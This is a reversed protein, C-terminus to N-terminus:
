HFTYVVHDYLCTLFNGRFIHMKFLDCSDLCLFTYVHRICTFVLVKDCHVVFKDCHIVIFHM